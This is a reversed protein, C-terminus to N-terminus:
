YIKTYKIDITPKENIPGFEIRSLLESLKILKTPSEEINPIEITEDLVDDDVNSFM